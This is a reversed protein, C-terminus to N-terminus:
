TNKGQLVREVELGLPTLSHYRLVKSPDLDDPNKGRPAERVVPGILELKYLSNLTAQSGNMPHRVDLKPYKKLVKLVGQQTPTLKSALTVPDLSVTALIHRLAVKSMLSKQM